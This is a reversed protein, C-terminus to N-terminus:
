RNPARSSSKRNIPIPPRRAASGRGCWRAYPDRVMAARGTVAAYTLGAAQLRRLYDRVTTRPLRCAAEIQRQSAGHEDRLRLIERIKRM